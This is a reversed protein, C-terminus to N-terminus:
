TKAFSVSLTIRSISDSSDLAGFSHVPIFQFLFFIGPSVRSREFREPVSRWLAPVLVTVRPGRDILRIEGGRPFRIGTCHMPWNKDLSQLPRASRTLSGAANSKVGGPGM